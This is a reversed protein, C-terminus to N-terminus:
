RNHRFSFKHRMRSRIHRWWHKLHRLEGRKHRMKPGVDTFFVNLAASKGIIANYGPVRQYDGDPNSANAQARVRLGKEASWGVPSLSEEMQVSIDIPVFPLDSGTALTTLTQTTYTASDTWEPADAMAVNPLLEPYTYYTYSPYSGFPDQNEHRIDTWADLIVSNSASLEASAYLQLAAYESGNSISAGRPIPSEFRWGSSIPYDYNANYKGLALRNRTSYHYTYSPYINNSSENGYPVADPTHFETMIRLEPQGATWESEGSRVGKFMYSVGTDTWFRSTVPKGSNPAENISSADVNPMYAILDGSADRLYIGGLSDDFDDLLPDVESGDELYVHPIDSWDVIFLMGALTNLTQAPPDNAVIWGRYDRGIDMHIKYREAHHAHNLLPSQSDHVQLQDWLVSSKCTVVESDVSAHSGLDITSETLIPAAVTYDIGGGFATVARTDTRLYAMETMLLSISHGRFTYIMTGQDPQVGTEVDTQIQTNYAAGTMVYGDIDANDTAVNELDIPTNYNGSGFASEYNMPAVTAKM